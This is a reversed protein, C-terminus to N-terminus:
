RLGDMVDAVAVLVAAVIRLLQVFRHRLADGTVVVLVVMFIMDPVQVLLNTSFTNWM